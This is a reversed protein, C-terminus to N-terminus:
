EEEVIAPEELLLVEKVLDVVEEDGYLKKVMEIAKELGTKAIDISMDGSIVPVGKLQRVKGSTCTFVYVKTKYRTVVYKDNRTATFEPLKDLDLSKSRIM